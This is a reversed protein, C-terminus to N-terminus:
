TLDRVCRGKMWEGAEQALSSLGEMWEQSHFLDRCGRLMGVWSKMLLQWSTTCTAENSSGVQKGGHAAGNAAPTGNTMPAETRGPAEINVGIRTVDTSLNFAELFSSVAPAQCSYTTPSLHQEFMVPVHLVGLPRAKLLLLQLTTHSMVIITQLHGGPHPRHCQALDMHIAASPGQGPQSSMSIGNLLDSIFSAQNPDHGAASPGSVAAAAAAAATATAIGAATYSATLECMHCVAEAVRAWSCAHGELARAQKAQEVEQITPDASQIEVPAHPPTQCANTMCSLLKTFLTM